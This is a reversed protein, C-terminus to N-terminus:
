KPDYEVHICYTSVVVDYDGGLRKRLAEVLMDVQEFKKPLRLDVAKDQYHLSGSKHTGEYTSTVVAEEGTITEYVEDIADLKRRISWHLRNIYVGLKLLM